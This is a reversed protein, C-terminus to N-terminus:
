RHIEAITGVLFIESPLINELRAVCSVPRFWWLAGALYLLGALIGGLIGVAPLPWASRMLTPETPSEVVTFVYGADPASARSSAGSNPPKGSAEDGALLYQVGAAEGNEPQWSALEDTLGQTAELTQRAGRGEWGVRITGPAIEAITLHQRLPEGDQSTVPIPSLGVDGKADARLPHSLISAALMAPGERALQRALEPDRPADFRLVSSSQYEGGSDEGPRTYSCFVGAAAISSMLLVAAVKHRVPLAAIRATVTTIRM